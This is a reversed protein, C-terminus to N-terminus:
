ASADPASPRAPEFCSPSAIQPSAGSAAYATPKYRLMARVLALMLLVLLGTLFTTGWDSKGATHDGLFEVSGGNRAYWGHWYVEDEQLVKQIQTRLITANAPHSRSLDDLKAANLAYKHKLLWNDWATGSLSDPTPAALYLEGGTANLGPFVSRQSDNEFSEIHAQLLVGGSFDIVCGAIVLIWLTRRVPVTAALLALGLIELPVLTLHAVGLPDREGVAAIGVVVCFLVIALWFFHEANAPFPRRFIGYLLYLVLPGGILGMGFIANTQYFVFLQDRANGAFGQRSFDDLLFRNRLVVPVISDGLNAAIKALNNGKVLNAGDQEGHIAIMSSNATLTAHLGFQVISWAFWTALFLGCVSAIAALEAFRRPRKWWVWLLYHLTLFLLYPAASYHSLLGMSLFVFAAIMRTHDKKRWGALYFWLALVVYFATFAKTWTYTVNQIVVPNMAFLATLPLVFTRRPGALAPLILCCPLLILLNLFAFILQFVEFRDRTQGLVFAAVLNMAPPRASLQYWDIIPSGTPFHNLFYLSRQFHELWDGYWGGGSYNRIMALIVFTWVFLFCFGALVQRVRFSAFLRAIDHRAIFALALSAISVLALLGPRMQADTGTGVPSFFYITGAVLYLLAFSAGISGCLKEMPSWRLRRIFFFGPAFGCVVLLVVALLLEFPLM